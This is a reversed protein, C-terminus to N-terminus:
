RQIHEFLNTYNMLWIIFIGASIFGSIIWTAKNVQNSVTEIKSEVHHEFKMLDKETLFRDHMYDKIERDVEGKCEMLQLPMDAMNKNIVKLASFIEPLTAKLEGVEATIVAQEKIREIDEKTYAKTTPPM